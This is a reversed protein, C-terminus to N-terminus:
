IKNTQKKHEYMKQYNQTFIRLKSLIFDFTKLIKM